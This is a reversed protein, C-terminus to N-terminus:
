LLTGSSTWLSGTHTGTNASSKYFRIGTIYGSIDSSFDVGLEVPNDPGSDPTGPTVSNSWISLPGTPLTVTVTVGTSPNGLNVTDDVARSMLTVPGTAGPTWTYSWNTTGTAPNWTKGGDTSVEVAVVFAGPAASATGTITVPTGSPLSAGSLPGTITTTPPASSLATQTAPVLGAQLTGPQAGMDALLNVTAQQMNPDPDPLDDTDYGEGDPASLGWSWQVTGASFVLAGSSARYETLSHTATTGGFTNGYDQMVQISPGGSETTLSMDIEGVPRFANNVDPDWEYGLVQGGISTSKGTAVTTNRWIPLNDYTSPVNIPSGVTNTGQNVTFFTGTLENQGIGGDAPPSFRPDAWTGTWIDASPDITDVQSPAVGAGNNLHTEKYCVLTRDLYPSGDANQYGSSYYTKWFATNGSFFALDVPTTQGPLKGDRAALINNFENASWYEDHGADMWIQHNEILSGNRDADVDTFYSVDYGNQELWEVMPFEAYFFEDHYNDENVNGALSPSNYNDLPRNYSVAYAAGQYSSPGNGTYLSAGQANNAGGWDNYAQWTADDTQFLIQSHSADNRVVFVIMNMGHTKDDYLDALYVGSVATSPVSWSASVSWNGADYEGTTTNHIPAPQNQPTIQSSPITQVLRADDGGYYGIRFIDIEYPDLTTDTVKFSITQGVNVSIDTSFGELSNDAQGEPVLWSTQTGPIYLTGPLQNETVIPNASLLVRDDLIELTPRM